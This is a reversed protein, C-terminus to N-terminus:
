GGEMPVQFPPLLSVGHEHSVLKEDAEEKPYQPLIEPATLGLQGRGSIQYEQLLLIQAEGRSARGLSANGAMGSCAEQPPYPQTFELSSGWTWLEKGMDLADRQISAELHM